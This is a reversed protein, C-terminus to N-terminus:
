VCDIYWEYTFKVNTIDCKIAGRGIMAVLKKKATAIEKKRETSSDADYGFLSPTDGSCTIASLGNVTIPLADHPIARYKNLDVDIFNRVGLLKVDLRAPNNNHSIYRTNFPRYNDAIVHAVSLTSTSLCDKANELQIVNITTFYIDDQTYWGSVEIHTRDSTHDKIKLHNVTGIINLVTNDPDERIALINANENTCAYIKEDEIEIHYINDSVSKVPTWSSFDYTDKGEAYATLKKTDDSTLSSYNTVYLGYQMISASTEEVQQLASTEEVQQPASTEEVLSNYCHLCVYRQRELNSSAQNNCDACYAKGNQIYYKHKLAIINM